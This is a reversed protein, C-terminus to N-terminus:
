TSKRVLLTALLPAIPTKKKDKMYYLNSAFNSLPTAHGNVVVWLSNMTLPKPMNGKTDSRVFVQSVYDKFPIRTGGSPYFAQDFIESLSSLTGDEANAVFIRNKVEDFPITRAVTNPNSFNMTFSIQHGPEKVDICNIPVPHPDVILTEVLQKVAGNTGDAPAQPVESAPPTDGRQNVQGGSGAVCYRGQRSVLFCQSGNWTWTNSKPGSLTYRNMGNAEICITTTPKFSGGPWPLEPTMPIMVLQYHPASQTVAKDIAGAGSVAQNIQEPSGSQMANNLIQNDKGMSDLPSTYAVPSVGTFQTSDASSFVPVAFALSFVAPFLPLTKASNVVRTHGRRIVVMYFM